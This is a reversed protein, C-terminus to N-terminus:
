FRVTLSVGTSNVALVPTVALNRHRRALLYGTVSGVLAGAVVDSFWHYQDAMRAIATGAGLAFMAGSVLGPYYVLWPTTFAFVTAAHGSPMSRGGGFPKYQGPGTEELPRDRGVMLKLASVVLNAYIVSEMSTFAADQFHENGSTLSGLFIVVAAPRILNVNGAEHFVRRIRSPVHDPLESTHSYLSHDLTSALLVTAGVSGVVLASRPSLASRGLAGADGLTWRVFRMPDGTQAQAQTHMLVPCVMAILLVRGIFRNARIM